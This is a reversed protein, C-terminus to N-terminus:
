ARSRGDVAARGDAESAAAVGPPRFASTTEAHPWADVRRSLAQIASGRGTPLAMPRPISPRDTRARLRHETVLQDENRHLTALLPWLVGRAPEGWTRLAPCDEPTGPFSLGSESAVWRGPAGTGALLEASAWLWGRGASPTARPQYDVLGLDVLTALPREGRALSTRRSLAELRRAIRRTERLTEAAHDRARRTSAEAEKTRARAVERELRQRVAIDRRDQEEAERDRHIQRLLDQARELPGAVVDRLQALRLASRSDLVETRKLLLQARLAKAQVQDTPRSSRINRAGLARASLELEAALAHRAGLLELDDIEKSVQKDQATRHAERRRAQGQQVAQELAQVAAGDGLSRRLQEADLQWGDAVEGDLQETVQLYSVATAYAALRLDADPGMLAARGLAASELARLPPRQRRGSSTLTGAMSELVALAESPLAAAPPRLAALAVHPRPRAYYGTLAREIGSGRDEAYATDLVVARRRYEPPLLRLREGNDRPNAALMPTPALRHIEGEAQVDVEGQFYNLVARRAPDDAKDFEDFLVFPRTAVAAPVWTLGAGPERQRRGLVSGVSQQPVYLTHEALSLGFSSCTLGALASKGTGTEGLAMAGLHGSTRSDALHFRAVLASWLLELFARHAYLGLDSWLALAPELAEGAGVAESVTTFRSWGASTLRVQSKPGDVLGAARLRDLARTRSREPVGAVRGADGPSAKGGLQILAEGLSIATATLSM